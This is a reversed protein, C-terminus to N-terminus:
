VNSDIAISVRFTMGYKLPVQHLVINMERFINTVEKPM